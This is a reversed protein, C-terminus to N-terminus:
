PPKVTGRWAPPCCAQELCGCRGHLGDGLPLLDLELWLLGVVGSVRGERMKRRPWSSSGRALARFSPCGNGSAWFALDTSLNITM